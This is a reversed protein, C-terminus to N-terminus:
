LTLFVNIIQCRNESKKKVEVKNKDTKASRLYDIANQINNINDQNM